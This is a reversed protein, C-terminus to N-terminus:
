YLESNKSTKCKSCEPVLLTMVMPIVSDWVLGAYHLEQVHM